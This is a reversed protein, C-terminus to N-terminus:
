TRELGLQAFTNLEYGNMHARTSLTFFFALLPSGLPWGPYSCNIFLLQSIMNHTLGVYFLLLAVFSLHAAVLLIIM